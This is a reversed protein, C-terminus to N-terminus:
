DDGGGGRLRKCRVGGSIESERGRKVAPCLSPRNHGSLGRGSIMSKSNFHPKEVAGRGKHELCDTKNVFSPNLNQVVIKKLDPQKMDSGGGGNEFIDVLNKFEQSQRRGGGEM